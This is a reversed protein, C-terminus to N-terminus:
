EWGEHIQNYEQPDLAIRHCAEPPVGVEPAVLNSFEEAFGESINEIVFEGGLEWFGCLLEWFSGLPGWSRGPCSSTRLQVESGGFLNSTQLM